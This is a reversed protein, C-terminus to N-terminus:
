TLLRTRLVMSQSGLTEPDLTKVRSGVNQYFSLDRLLCGQGNQSFAMVRWGISFSLKLDELCASFRTSGM